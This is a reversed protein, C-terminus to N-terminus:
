SFFFEVQLLTSGGDLLVGHSKESDNATRLIVKCLMSYSTVQDEYCLSCKYRRIPLVIKSYTSLELRQPKIGRYKQFVFIGGREYEAWTLKM